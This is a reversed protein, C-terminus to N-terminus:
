LIARLVVSGLKQGMHKITTAFRRILRTKRELQTQNQRSTSHRTNLM